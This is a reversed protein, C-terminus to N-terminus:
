GSTLSDLIIKEFYKESISLLSVPRYNKKLQWDGKKHIPVINSKKWTQSFCEKYLCNKYLIQSPKSISTACLKIVGISIRDRGHAKNPDLSRIFKVINDNCVELTPIREETEFSINEPVSSPNNVTTCQQNLFYNYLNAKLKFGTYRKGNARTKLIPWCTKYSTQCDNPKIPLCEYSVKLM